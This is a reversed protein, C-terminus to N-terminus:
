SPLLPKSELHNEPEIAAVFMQLQDPSINSLKAIEQLKAHTIEGLRFAELALMLLKHQFKGERDALRRPRGSQSWLL